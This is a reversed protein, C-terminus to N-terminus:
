AVMDLVVVTVTLLVQRQVEEHEVQQRKVHMLDKLQGVPEVLLAPELDARALLIKPEQTMGELDQQEAAPLVHEFIDM